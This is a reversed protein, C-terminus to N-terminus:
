PRAQRRYEAPTTGVANHFVRTLYQTTKFGTSGAIRKIPWETESLLKKVREIQTHRIEQHITRGVVEKLRPELVGRSLSTHHLVDSVSAPRCAHERIYRVAVAVERDKTALVDTSGRTIVARPPLLLPKKPVSKGRMLRDLLAAAEYGIRDSGVDVSTQAPVSLNCVFDDNGSSLVAMEDPVTVGSHRCAELFHIGLPHDGIMVGVPKELSAAWSAVQDKIQEFLNGRRRGIRLRLVSCRFGNAAVEALFADCKRKLRAPEDRALGCYGFNRFGREFLHQFALRAVGVFDVGVAPVGEIPVLRGRLDVTPINLERVMDAIRENRVQVLLGDGKWGKLWAPPLAEAGQPEFDISWSEQGHRGNRKRGGHSNGGVLGSGSLHNNYQAVGSILKRGCGRATEAVIAIRKM